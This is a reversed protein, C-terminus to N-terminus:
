VIVWETGDLGEGTPPSHVIKGEFEGFHEIMHGYTIHSRDAGSDMGLGM